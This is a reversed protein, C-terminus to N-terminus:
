ATIGAKRFYPLDPRIFHREPQTVLIDRASIERELIGASGYEHNDKNEVCYLLSHFAQSTGASEVKVLNSGGGFLLDIM